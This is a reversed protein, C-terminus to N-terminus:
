EEEARERKIKELERLLQATDDEDDSDDDDSEEEAASTSSPQSKAKPATNESDSNDDDSDDDDDDNDWAQVQALLQRRREEDLVPPQHQSDVISDSKTATENGLASRESQKKRFHEREAELLQRKLDQAQLDVNDDQGPQRFKLKTHSALDRASLQVTPAQSERGRAPDFTPRAATTM